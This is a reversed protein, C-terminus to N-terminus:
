SEFPEDTELFRDWRSAMNGALHKVLIAPSNSQRDLCALFQEDSLQSLAAEAMTKYKRFQLLSDELFPGQFSQKV